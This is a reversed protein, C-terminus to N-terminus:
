GVFWKLSGKREGVELLELGNLPNQLCTGGSGPYNAAQIRSGGGDGNQHGQPVAALQFLPFIEWSPIDGGKMKNQQGWTATGELLLSFDCILVFM